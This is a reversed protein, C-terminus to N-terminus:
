RTLFRSLADSARYLPTGEFATGRVNEQGRRRIDQLAARARARASSRFDSAAQFAKDLAVDAQSGSAASKRDPYSAVSEYRERLADDLTRPRVVQRTTPRVAPTLISSPADEIAPATGVLTAAAGSLDAARTPSTRREMRERARTMGAAATKNSEADKRLKGTLESPSGGGLYEDQYSQIREDLSRTDPRPAVASGPLSVGGFDQLRSLLQERSVGLRTAEKQMNAFRGESIDRGGTEISKQLNADFAQRGALGQPAFSSRQSLRTRVDSVPPVSSGSVPNEPPPTAGPAVPPPEAPSSQQKARVGGGTGYAMQVATLRRQTDADFASENGRSGSAFLPKGDKGLAEFQDVAGTEQLQKALGGQGGPDTKSTMTSMEVPGQPRLTNAATRAPSAYQEAGRRPGAPTDIMQPEQVEGAALAAGMEAQKAAESGTQQYSSAMRSEASGISAQAPLGNKEAFTAIQMAGARDGSRIADRLALRAQRGGRASWSPGISQARQKTAAVTGSEPTPRLRSAM